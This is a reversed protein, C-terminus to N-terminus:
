RTFLWSRGGVNKDDDRFGVDTVGTSDIAQSAKTSVNEFGAVARYNPRVRPPATTDAVSPGLEDIRLAGAAAHIISAERALIPLTIMAEAEMGPAKGGTIIMTSTFPL